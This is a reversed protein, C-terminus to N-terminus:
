KAGASSKLPADVTSAAWAELCAAIKSIVAESDYIEVVRERARDALQARLADDSGLCLIASALRDANDVSVLM